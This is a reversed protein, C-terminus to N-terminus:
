RGFCLNKKQELAERGSSARQRLYDIEPGLRKRNFEFHLRGDRLEYSEFLQSRENVKKLTESLGTEDTLLVHTRTVASQDLSYFKAIKAGYEFVHRYFDELSTSGSSHQGVRGVAAAEEPDM